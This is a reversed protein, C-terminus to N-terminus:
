YKGISYTIWYQAKKNDSFDHAMTDHLFNLGSSSFILVYPKQTNTLLIDKINFNLKIKLRLHYQLDWILELRISYEASFM